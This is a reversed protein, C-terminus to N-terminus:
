VAQPLELQFRAGDDSPACRLDGDMRRALERSLYLGIGVGPLHETATLRQYRQFIRDRDAEAVGTGHDRVDIRVRGEWEAVEVQVDSGTPSYKFANDILNRLIVRLREPDANVRVDEAGNIILPHVGHTAESLRAADQLAPALPTAGMKLNLRDADIRGLDLLESILAECRLAATHADNALESLEPDNRENATGRLVDTSLTLVTLPSRLEHSALNVVDGRHAALREATERRQEQRVFMDQIRRTDVVLLSVLTVVAVAVAAGLLIQGERLADRRDQDLRLRVPSIDFAFQGQSRLLNSAAAVTLDRSPATEMAAGSEIEAIFAEGSDLVARASDIYPALNEDMGLRAAEDM